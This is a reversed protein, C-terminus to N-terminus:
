DAKIWLATDTVGSSTWILRWRDVLGSFEAWTASDFRRVSLPSRSRNPLFWNINDVILLGGPKLLPVVRVACDARYLGDVLAYDLSGRPLDEAVALYAARYPDNPQTEDAPIFRYDVKNALGASALQAQVSTYWRRDAEVSVVGATRQALWRTSRGSGYEIGHDLPRLARDLISVAERTLWPAQPDRREFAVVLLLDLLYRPTLHSFRRGVYRLTLQDLPKEQRRSAPQM